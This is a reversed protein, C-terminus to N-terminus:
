AAAPQPLERAHRPQFIVCVHGGSELEERTAAAVRRCCFALHINAPQPAGALRKSSGTVGMSRGIMGDGWQRM